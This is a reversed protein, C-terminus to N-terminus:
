ASRRQEETQIADDDAMQDAEDWGDFWEARAEEDQEAYPNSEREQCVERAYRGAEIPPAILETDDKPCIPCPSALERGACEPCSM